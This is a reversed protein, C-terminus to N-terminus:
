NKMSMKCATFLACADNTPKFFIILLLMKRPYMFKQYRIIIPYRNDKADSDDDDYDTCSCLYKLAYKPILDKEKINQRIKSFEYNDKIEHIYILRYEQEFIANQDM